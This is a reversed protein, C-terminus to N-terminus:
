FKNITFALKVVWWYCPHNYLLFRFMNIIAVSSLKARPQSLRLFKKRTTFVFYKTLMSPWLESNDATILHNIVFTSHQLFIMTGLVYAIVNNNFM